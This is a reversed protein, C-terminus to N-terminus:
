LPFDVGIGVDRHHWESYDYFSCAWTEDDHPQIITSRAQYIREKLQQPIKGSQYLVILAEAAAKRVSRLSEDKMWWVTLTSLLAEVSAAGLAVCQEWKEKAVWYWAAGEDQGPKWGLKDLAEVAAKRVEWNEDRLARILPEVARPDGITGLAEAAARRVDHDEDRLAQILPEVARKDGIRRLAWAAAERV